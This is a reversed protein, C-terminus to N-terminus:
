FHRGNRYITHRWLHFLLHLRLWSFFNNWYDLFISFEPIFNHKPFTFVSCTRSVFLERSMKWAMHDDNKMPLVLSEIVLCTNIIFASMSAHVLIDEYYLNPYAYGCPYALAGCVLLSLLSITIQIYSRRKGGLNVMGVYFIYKIVYKQRFDQCNFDM